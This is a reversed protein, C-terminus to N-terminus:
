SKKDKSFEISYKLDLPQYRWAFGFKKLHSFYDYFEIEEDKKTTTNHFTLAILPPCDTVSRKQFPIIKVKTEPHSIKLDLDPEEKEKVLNQLSNSLNNLKNVDTVTEFESGIEQNISLGTVAYEQSKYFKVNELENTEVIDATFINNKDAPLEKYFTHVPEM